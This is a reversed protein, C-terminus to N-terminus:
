VGVVMEEEVEDDEKKEADGRRRRMSARMVGAMQFVIAPCAILIQGGADIICM